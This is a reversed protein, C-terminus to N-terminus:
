ARGTAKAAIWLPGVLLHALNKFFAPSQKEYVYHGVFQFIWGAAFLGWATWPTVARGAVDLIALAALMLAALPVDLWLYFVVMALIVVEAATVEFGGLGAVPVRALLAASAFVILPIGVYHCARNGPARHFSAYDAFQARLTATV